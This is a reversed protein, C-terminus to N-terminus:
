APGELPGRYRTEFDRRCARPLVVSRGPRVSNGDGPPGSSQGLDRRAPRRPLREGASTGPNSVFYRRPTSGDLLGRNEAYLTEAPVEIDALSMGFSLTFKRIAASSIGRRALSRLSWTRPDSWGDFLGSKVEQYSKSKSVKAERIRLIGWHIFPPGHLNLVNWIYDQMRGEIMLDKGRLVHTVGLELDDVAWSFELMPWVRYKRGVRPHDFDSIRMLVRDRFAPDPDAMDTKLRLVAAGPALAGSLMKEWLDLTTDLSQSREPCAIEAARNTRLLTASCTCVYAAQRDIM